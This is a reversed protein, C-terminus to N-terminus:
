DDELNPEVIDVPINEKVFASVMTQDEDFAEDQGKDDGSYKVYHSNLSLLNQKIDEEEKKLRQVRKRIFCFAAIFFGFLCAIGLVLILVVAFLPLKTRNNTPDIEKEKKKTAVLTNSSVFTNEQPNSLVSVFVEFREISPDEAIEKKLTFTSRTENIVDTLFFAYVKNEKENENSARNLHHYNEEYKNAETKGIGTVYCQLYCPLFYLGELVVNYDEKSLFMTASTLIPVFCSSTRTKMAEGGISCGRNWVWLPSTEDLLGDSVLSDVSVEGQGECRINHRSFQSGLMIGVLSFDCSSVQLSGGTILVGSCLSNTFSCNNMQSCCYKLGILAEPVDCISSLAADSVSTSSSFSSSFSPSLFSNGRNAFIKSHNMSNQSYDGYGIFECNRLLARTSELLILASSFLQMQSYFSSNSLSFEVFPHDPESSIRKLGTSLLNLTFFKGDGKSDLISKLTLNVNELSISHLCDNKGRNGESHQCEHQNVPSCQLPAENSQLPVDVVFLLLSSSIFTDLSISVDKFDILNCNGFVFLNVMEIFITFSSHSIHVEGKSASLLTICVPSSQQDVQKEVYSFHELKTICSDALFLVDKDTKFETGVVLDVSSLCFSSTCLCLANFTFLSHISSNLLISRFPSPSVSTIKIDKVRIERELPVSSILVIEAMKEEEGNQEWKESFSNKMRNQMSIMKLNWNQRRKTATDVVDSLHVIGDSLETCPNDKSGCDEETSSSVSSLGDVDEKKIGCYCKQDRFIDLLIETVVNMSKDDKQDVALISNHTSFNNAIPDFLFQVFSLQSKPERCVFCVDRGFTAQNQNCSLKIILFPLLTGSSPSSSPSSDVVCVGGGHGGAAVTQCFSFTTTDLTFSDDESYLDIKLAGGYFSSDSSCNSFSTNTITVAMPHLNIKPSSTNISSSSFSSCFSAFSSTSHRSVSNQLHSASIAPSNQTDLDHIFSSDIQLLCGASTTEQVNVASTSQFAFHFLNLSAFKVCGGNIQIIPSRVNQLTYYSPLSPSHDDGKILVNSLTLDFTRFPDFNFSAFDAEVLFLPSFVIQSTTDIVFAMNAVTMAKRVIFLPHDRASLTPRIGTSTQGSGKIQLPSRRIEYCEDSRCAVDGEMLWIEREIEETIQSFADKLTSCSQEESIGCIESAYESHAQKKQVQFVDNTTKTKHSNSKTSNESQETECSEDVEVFVKGESIANVEENLRKNSIENNKVGSVFVKRMGTMLWFDVNIATLKGLRWLVRENRKTSFSYLTPRTHNLLVKYVDIFLLDSAAEEPAQNEVSNNHFFSFALLPSSSHLTNFCNIELGASANFSQCHLFSCETVLTDFSFLLINIGGFYSSAGCRSIVCNSIIADANLAAAQSLNSQLQQITENISAYNEMEGSNNVEFQHKYYIQNSTVDSFILTAAGGVAANCDEMVCSDIHLMSIMGFIAGGFEEQKESTRVSNNSFACGSAILHCGVVYIAGGSSISHCHKFTCSQIEVHCGQFSSFVCLAGGSCYLYNGPSASCKEESITDNLFECQYFLINGLLYTQSYRPM